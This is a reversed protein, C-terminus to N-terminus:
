TPFPGSSSCNLFNRLLSITSQAATSEPASRSVSQKSNEDEEEEYGDEDGGIRSFDDEGYAESVLGGKEESVSPFFLFSYIPPFHLFITRHNSHSSSHRLIFFSGLDRTNFSRLGWVRSDSCRQLRARALPGMEEYSCAAMRMETHGARPVPGLVPPM